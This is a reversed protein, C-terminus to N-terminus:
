AAHCSHRPPALHLCPWVLRRAGGGRSGAGRVCCSDCALLFRLAVAHALCVQIADSGGDHKGGLSSDKSHIVPNTWVGNILDCREFVMGYQSQLYTFYQFAAWRHSAVVEEPSADRPPHLSLTVKHYDDGETLLEECMIKPRNSRQVLKYIVRPMFGVEMDPAAQRFLKCCLEGLAHAKVDDYLEEAGAGGLDKKLVKVRGDDLDRMRICGFRSGHAFMRRAVKVTAPTSGWSNHTADFVLVEAEEEEVTDVDYLQGLV